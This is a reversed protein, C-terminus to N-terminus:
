VKEIPVKSQEYSKKADEIGKQLETFMNVSSEAFQSMKRLFGALSVRFQDLGRTWDEAAEDGLMKTGLDGDQGSASHPHNASKGQNKDQRPLFHAVETALSKISDVVSDTPLNNLMDLWLGCTTYIPPGHQRLPPYQIKKKRKSSKELQLVCKYLWKNIAEVYTKQANMWKTFCSSLSSLESELHIVIQRRSDSHIYIKTNGPTYAVSIIHLQLKHCDFMVEWMRRLGEILEELQPQLERDRLDEIKKSISDIRHIAVRIRSHLDKVVARTKDVRSAKEANSEQQRLLKRKADYKRRIQESAKVEDYLKKEWAYLRDITSAHSGSIMSLSDLLSKTLDEIDDISNAGPLNRSSSSRSSTTRHWTLYKVDTQPPEEQVQSPDEGCSFCSKLFSATMSGNEKGPVIPRFHFKNAELMRPVERGSESAKGFLYEIEKMSMFFDKPAVRDEVNTNDDDEMPTTKIDNGGAAESTARLPTLDPSNNKLRKLVRSDSAISEASPTAPSNNTAISEEARNVNEFSRVLTAASPEDFEDESELSEERGPSSFKEDGGLESIGEEERLQRIEAAYKSEQNLKTQELSSFHNDVAHSLGFYDWPPTEPPLPPPEFPLTEPRAVSRPTTSEPTASTVSFTQPISPKEEVKSSFTGRFKMHNERYHRSSPPSSSPSINRTADALQYFAPSSYSFQSASKENLVHPEPTASTSTYISSEVPAEPEVFKSLATGTVKLAEIYSIHNAALSCRANLAQGIFKKRERCLQLAKDEEMRSNSAGM